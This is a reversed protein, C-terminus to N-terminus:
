DQTNKPLVSAPASVGINPSRIHLVSEDSSIRINPFISSPLLLPFCLILHNSPVVLEISMLKLLSQSNTISLSAQRAATCPTVSLVCSLLQVLSFQVMLLSPLPQSPLVSPAYTKYTFPKPPEAPLSDAQLTPSRSKIAPKSPFSYGSWYEPRSCELPNYLTVM